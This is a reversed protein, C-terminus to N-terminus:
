PMDASLQPPKRHRTAQEYAYALKIMLGDAYPRGQFTIGVPLNERTFGAPVSIAPVFVLFTNLTPFGAGPASSPIPGKLILPPPGDITKYVLSDLKHDAMVKLIIIMLEQRAFLYEYYQEPPVDYTGRLRQQTEPFVQAFEPAEIIEKRSKYPANPHRAFYVDFSEDEEPGRVRKAQLERLKPIVLPDVLEAGAAKLEELTKEFVDNVSKYDEPALRANNALPERIVGIRAGRLGNPDLFETYSGPVKGVGLATVPDESDYGVMVDLLKALDTVTRTMPTLSGIISPWGGYSGTRSILGATPRMGVVANWASPRRTSAANEQGVGITVFNAAVSAGTGGSSGGPTRDLAYPNLTTGFLSGYNDGGVFEAVTAKGLIIAGARKLKEVVFADKEPYFDKFMVSGFTTAMGQSDIMDKLIVPIGHLPGVLGSRKFAADLKDAEELAEPNVVQISNISPGKRDYAEIRDLYM